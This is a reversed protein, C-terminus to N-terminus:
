ATDIGKRVVKTEPFGDPEGFVFTGESVQKDEAGNAVNGVIFQFFNVMAM